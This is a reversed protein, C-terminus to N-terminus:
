GKEWEEKNGAVVKFLPHVDPDAIHRIAGYVKIDRLRAKAKFHRWEFEVQGETVRIKRRTGSQLIKTADFQYGRRTAELYIQQLYEGIMLQPDSCARFRILQPHHKYGRTKGQLVKQALLTERWVAVMGKADLYKPHISWIRM